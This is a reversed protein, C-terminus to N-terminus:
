AACPAGSKAAATNRSASMPDAMAAGTYQINVFSSAILRGPRVAVPHIQFARGLARHVDPILEQLAEGSCARRHIQQPRQGAARMPVATPTSGPIPGAVATAISSGM